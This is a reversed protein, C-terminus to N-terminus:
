RKKPPAKVVLTFPTTAKIGVSTVTLVGTLRKGGATKPLRPQCLAANGAVQGKV